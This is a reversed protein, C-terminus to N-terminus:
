LHKNTVYNNLYIVSNACGPLILPPRNPLPMEAWFLPSFFIV